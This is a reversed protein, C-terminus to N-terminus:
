TSSISVFPLSLRSGAFHLGRAAIRKRQPSNNPLAVAGTAVWIFIGQMQKLLPANERLWNRLWEMKKLVDDVHKSNAPHVELWFVQDDEAERWAVGYDWRSDNPYRTQLEADLNISGALKRTETCDIRARDVASLAQLGSRYAAEIEETQQVAEEFTM